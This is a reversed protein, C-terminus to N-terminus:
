TDKWLFKTNRLIQAVQQNYPEYFDRLLERTEPRMGGLKQDEPKRTNAVDSAAILNEEDKTIERLHLFKYIQKVYQLSHKSYDELRLIYFQKLPFLTLWDKLYVSYVGVRLRVRVKNALNTDYICRRVSFSATCNNYLNIASKVASHFDDASKNAPNFYLYDSFLREVPDRLMLILKVDPIMHHVYHPIIYLPETQDRNEPFKMWETNDWFMSVSAEGTIKQTVGPQDHQHSRLRQEIHVAASDFMDLYDELPVLKSYGFRRGQRSRSWWHLEKIPPSEIDPHKAIKWFLSTTGCKPQGILLFYPLCRLRKPYERFDFEDTWHETLGALVRKASPSFPIYSNNEYPNPTMLPEYWCPNLFKRDFEPKMMHLIDLRTDNWLFGEARGEVTSVLTTNSDRESSQSAVLNGYEDEEEDEGDEYYGVYDEYEIDEDNDTETNDDVNKNEEYQLDSKFNEDSSKVEAEDDDLEANNHTEKKNDFKEEVNRDKDKGTNDIEHIKGIGESDNSVFSKLNDDIENNRESKVKGLQEDKGDDKKHHTESTLIATNETGYGGNRSYVVSNVVVKTERIQVADKNYTGDGGGYRQRSRNSVHNIGYHERKVETRGNSHVFQLKSSFSVANYYSISILFIVAATVCLSIFLVKFDTKKLEIKERFPFRWKLSPGYTM